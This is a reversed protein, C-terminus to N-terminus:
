RHSASDMWKILRAEEKFEQERIQEMSKPNPNATIDELKVGSFGVKGSPDSCSFRLWVTITNADAPLNIHSSQPAANDGSFVISFDGKTTNSHNYSAIRGAQLGSTSDPLAVLGTLQRATLDKGDPGNHTACLSLSWDGNVSDMALTSLCATLRYTHGPTLGLFKRYVGHVVGKPPAKIVQFFPKTSLVKAPNYFRLGTFKIGEEFSLSESKPATSWTTWNPAVGKAFPIGYTEELCHGRLHIAGANSPIDDSFGIVLVNFDDINVPIQKRDIVFSTSPGGVRKYFCHDFDTWYCQVLIFDYVEEPNVWQILVKDATKDYSCTLFLPPPPIGLGTETGALTYADIGAGLILTGKSATAQYGGVWLIHEKSSKRRYAAHSANIADALRRAVSEALEGVSTEIVVYRQNRNRTRALVLSGGSAVGKFTLEYEAVKSASAVGDQVILITAVVLTARVLFKKCKM